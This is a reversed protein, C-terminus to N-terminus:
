PAPILSRITQELSRKINEPLRFWEGHTRYNVLRDHLGREVKQANDMLESSCVLVPKEPCGTGIASLRSAPDHSNGLKVYPGAAILYVKKQRPERQEFLQWRSAIQRAMTESRTGTSKFKRKGNRDMYIAQFYPSGERLRIYAQDKLTEDVVEQCREETLILQRGAEGLREWEIAIRLAESRNKNGTSKKRQKGLADKWCATWYPSAPHKWVTAM